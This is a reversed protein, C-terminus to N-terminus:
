DRGNSYCMAVFRNTHGLGFTNQFDPTQCTDSM